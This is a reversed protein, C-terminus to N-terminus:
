DVVVAAAADVAAERTEAVAVAIADGVHRVTDSALRPRPTFTEFELDGAGFIGVVGPMARAEATDVGKIRAHALTSRVFVAHLCGAPQVDDTFRGAGTVLRPDERRKISGGLAKNVAM